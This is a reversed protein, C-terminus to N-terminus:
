PHKIKGQTTQNPKIAAHVPATIPLSKMHFTFVRKAM